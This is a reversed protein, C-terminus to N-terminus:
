HSFLLLLLHLLAISVCVFMTTVQPLRRWSPLKVIGPFETPCDIETDKDVPGVVMGNTLQHRHASPATATAAPSPLVIYWYEGCNDVINDLGGETRPPTGALSNSVARIM